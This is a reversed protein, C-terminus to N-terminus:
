PTKTSSPSLDSFGGQLIFLLSYNATLVNESKKIANRPGMDLDTTWHQFRCDSKDVISDWNMWVTMFIIIEKTKKLIQDLDHSAAM